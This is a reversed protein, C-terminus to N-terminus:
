QVAKRYDAWWRACNDSKDDRNAILVDYRRVISVWPEDGIKVKGVKDTCAAPLDPLSISAQARGQAQAAATVRQETTQCGALFMAVLILAKRAM